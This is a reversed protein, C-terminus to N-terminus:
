RKILKNSITGNNTQLQIIFLGSNLDEITISITQDGTTIETSQYKVMSGLSNYITITAQDSIKSNLELSVENNAPNPFLSVEVQNALDNISNPGNTDDEGTGMQITFGGNTKGTLVGSIDVMISDCFTDSCAGTSDTITLCLVWPGASPYTHLFNLGYYTPSNDGFDWSYGLNQGTSTNVIMVNGTSVVNNFSDIVINQSLTFGAVCTQTDITPCYDITGFDFVENGPINSTNSTSIFISDGYCDMYQLSVTGSGSLFNYTENFAGNPTTTISQYTIGDLTITFTYVYPPPISNFVGTVTSTGAGPSTVAGTTQWFQGDWYQEFCCMLTDVYGMTDTVTYSICTSLTDYYTGNPNYNYIMHTCPGSFCSDESLMNGDGYTVAYLPAMMPLSNGTVPIAVELQMQSGTTYTMNSDCLTIQAMSSSSMIMLLLILLYGPFIKLRVNDKKM